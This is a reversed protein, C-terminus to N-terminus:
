RLDHVMLGATTATALLASDRSAVAAGDRLALELYVADYVSLGSTRALSLIRVLEPAGPSSAFSVSSELLALDADAAGRELRGRRELRFLANRIELRLLTPASWPQEALAFFNAAAASSQGSVLASLAASADLVCATSV